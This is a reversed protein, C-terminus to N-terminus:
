LMSTSKKETTCMYDMQLNLHVCVKDPVKNWHFAGCVWSIHPNEFHSTSKLFTNRPSSLLSSEKLHFGVLNREIEIPPKRPLAGLCLICNISKNIPDARRGWASGVGLSIYIYKLKALQGGMAAWKNELGICNLKKPLLEAYHANGMLLICHQMAKRERKEKCYRGRWILCESHTRAWAKGCHCM